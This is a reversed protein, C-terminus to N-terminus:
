FIVDYSEVLNTVIAEDILDRLQALLDKREQLSSREHLVLELSALNTYAVSPAPQIGTSTTPASVALIPAELRWSFKNTAANKGSMRQSLTLRNQGVAVAQTRDRWSMTDGDSKFPQYVRNVPTSAADTLTIASRLAM